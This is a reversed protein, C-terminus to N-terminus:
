QDPNKIDLTEIVAMAFFWFMVALVVYRSWDPVKPYHYLVAIAGACALFTAGMHAWFFRKAQSPYAYKLPIFHLIGFCLVVIFSWVPNLDVIFFLLFVVMNWLVPFGVFYAEGGTMDSKGYYLAASLLMTAIAFPMLADSTMGVKYFFFAPIIAYTAFDIVYDIYKGEIQPLVVNVKAMRAFTGDVGDIVLCLLLWLWCEKWEGNDIAVLAMFASLMGSATFIHVAWAATKQLFTAGELKEM